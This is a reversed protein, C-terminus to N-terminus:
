RLAVVIADWDKPRWVYVEQKAKHLEDIWLQQEDSLKGDDSKLEAWIVRERVLVLDVFGKGEGQVATVWAGSKTQAPRFHASRWRCLKAMQLVQKLFDAELLKPLKPTRM